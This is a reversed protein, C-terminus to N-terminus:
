PEMDMRIVRYVRFQSTVSGIDRFLFDGGNTSLFSAKENPGSGDIANWWQYANGVVGTAWQVQYNENWAGRWVISNTRFDTQISTIQFQGFFIDLNGSSVAVFNTDNVGVVRWRGNATNFFPTAQWIIYEQYASLNTAL